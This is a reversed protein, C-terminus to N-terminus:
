LVRLATALVSDRAPGTMLPMETEVGFHLEGLWAPELRNRMARRMGLGWKSPRLQARIM